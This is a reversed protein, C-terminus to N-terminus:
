PGAFVTTWSVWEDAKDWYGIDPLGGQTELQIQNGHLEANTASLLVDGKSEPHIVTAIAPPTVPKLNSGIIKSSCTLDSIKKDPLEVMLGETTQTFKLKGKYGPLNVRKIKNVSSDGTKALLKIVVKGDEPWGLAIAYLTKGKATFRIDKLKEPDWKEAKWLPIIDKWGNTSPHGYRLLHDKYDASGQQYMKRAYWDGEMPVAQPGWHAWIGFKADRFWKPCSYNTLSDMTDSFKGPTVPLSLTFATESAQRQAGITLILAMQLLTQAGTLPLLQKPLAARSWPWLRRGSGGALIIAYRM